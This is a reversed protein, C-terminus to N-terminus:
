FSVGISLNVHDATNKSGTLGYTRLRRYELGFLLNSRPRFISNVLVTQNRALATFSYNRAAAFSELDKSFPNAAGAAINFELKGAPKVKM